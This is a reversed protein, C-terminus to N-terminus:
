TAISLEDIQARYPPDGLATIWLLVVRGTTGHLDFTADGGIDSASAVPAGWGDLTSPATDAVYVDAAWGQTPSTM